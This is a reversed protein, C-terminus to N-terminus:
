IESIIPPRSLNVALAIIQGIKVNKFTLKHGHSINLKSPCIDSYDRVSRLVGTSLDDALSDKNMCSHFRWLLPRDM